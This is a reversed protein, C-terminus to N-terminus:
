SNYRHRRTISIYVVCEINNNAETWEETKWRSSCCKANKARECLFGAFLQDVLKLFDTTGKATTGSTYYSICMLSKCVNDIQITHTRTYVCVCTHICVRARMMCIHLSGRGSLVCCETTVDMGRCSEFGCDWCALPRLGVGQFACGSSDTHALSLTTSYTIPVYTTDLLSTFQLHVICLSNKIHIARTHIHRHTHTHTYIHTHHTHTHTYIHTYVCVLCM